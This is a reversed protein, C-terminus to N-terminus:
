EKGYKAGLEVKDNLSLLYAELDRAVKEWTYKRQIIARGPKGWQELKDKNHYAYEIAKAIELPDASPIYIGCNEEGIISRHAPIDTLVVVKEMALYELLKLPSQSKWFPHYPLPVICIDCMSIFKPVEFQDVPDHIIINDQLGEKQILDRLESVITGRGLLFFVFDPYKRKLIKIANITEILGRTVSFGGHYFVVFKTSLGLKRKLEPRNSIYKQPDFLTPSVGSTWVGVKDPNIEFRECVERKMLSTIITMGDFLKKAVIISVAFCFNQLSGRFGFTEVPISRVDLIFKIRKFKSFFRTHILSVISVDPATIVVDPKLTIVYFPLFISLVITFMVPSIVPLHRLPISIIRAQFNDTRLRARRGSRQAILYTSHSRKELHRMIELQSTRFLAIDMLTPQVWLIRRGQFNNSKSRKGSAAVRAGRLHVSVM